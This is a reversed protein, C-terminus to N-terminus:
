GGVACSRGCCEKYRAGAGCWCVEDLGPPWKVVTGEDVQNAIAYVEAMSRADRIDPDPDEDAAGITRPVAAVRGGAYARLVREIDQYYEDANEATARDPWLCLAHEFQGRAWFHLRGDVVRPSALRGPLDICKDELEDVGIDARLDKDDLPIELAWRVRRRGATLQRAWLPADTGLQETTLYEVANSFFFLSAELDGLEELLEAALSWPAGLVRRGVMLEALEARAQGEQECRYLYDAYELHGWDAANGGESIMQKWIVIAQAAQGGLLHQQASDLRDALESAGSIRVEDAISENM